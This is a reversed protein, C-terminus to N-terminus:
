LNRQHGTLWDLQRISCNALSILLGSSGEPTLHALGICNKSTFSASPCASQTSRDNSAPLALSTMMPPYYCLPNSITM